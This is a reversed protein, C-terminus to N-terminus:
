PRTHPALRGRYRHVTPLRPREVPRSAQRDDQCRYPLERIQAIMGGPTSVDATESQKGDRYWAHSPQAHKAYHVGAADQDPHSSRLAQRIVPQFGRPSKAPILQADNHMTTCLDCRAGRYTISLFLKYIVKSYKYDSPRLNSDKVIWWIPGQFMLPKRTALANRFHASVLFPYTIGACNQSTGPAEADALTSKAPSESGFM